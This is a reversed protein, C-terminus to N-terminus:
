HRGADSQEVGLQSTPTVLECGATHLSTDVLMQSSLGQSTPSVLECGATHLSTGVLM